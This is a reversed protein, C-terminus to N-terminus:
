AVMERRGGAHHLDLQALPVPRGFLYGQVLDVGANRMYELQEETEVGEATTVTGLGQALALTSAVIARCDRRDLVGQTFSKDIKIKDFPFVTLYNISSYGTGFDDLAISIGLNKLQRITTLQAEQNDLLSTETIELELREPALGTEVLTCLILDFLNDKRFQVASINIAVKVHEPWSVADTCAKQLVWEGLQVILGTSEALPIFRDPGILGRAPHRWRLLAEVGCLTRTKVDIVPQYHLEFQDQAIADRLESEASQQTQSAELMEPQFLRFDNRGEAKVAYLALDAKKLLEEPDLGHEPALVIGISTGISAPHGDLDFPRAIANIIRLALAIAGEHQNPGGEQIVAFEDGGLRALVDTERVSAKLRRAVEVLLQDGAPHGLTDNVVKFRDLDIMMVTVAGGNRKMRKSAEQLKANFEARNALGTLVDHRALHIIEAEARRRETIDEVIAVWGGGEMPQRVLQVFRGDALEDIRSSNPASNALETVRTKVTLEDTAGKLVGRSIRDAVITEYPTGVKLLEPPVQYLEAYRDNWVVLRKRGDFMCLGQAMNELAAGFRTNITELEAAKEALLQENHKEATVDEHTTLWGGNAMAQRKISILRGDVLQQVENAQKVNVSVYTDAAIEFNTGQERRYQLIQRLTTGPKVQDESLRYIQAYRANSVVVRQDGDFLCLGQSMNRLAAHFRANMVELEAAKEAVLKEQQRQATVDEHTAVWGGDATASRRIAIERGDAPTFNQKSQTPIREAHEDVTLDDIAGRDAHFQLLPDLPTGPMVLREPLDYIERFRSNAIVLKKDADFLCLGQAMNNLAADFRMNTRALEAAQKQIAEEHRIRETIDEHIAVWGGGAIATNVVAILRGDALRSSTTSKGIESLRQRFEYIYSAVDLNLNGAQKRHEIIETISIGQRVLEPSMGYLQVYRENWVMLRGDADFMSLGSSMNALAADFHINQTSLTENLRTLKDRGRDITMQRLIAFVTALLIIVTIIAAALHYGRRHQLYGSLIDSEALGVTFVLPFTESTRYAVLRNNGDVAGGGWYHGPSSQALADLFTPQKVKRGIANDSLGQAAIFFGDLNRLAISGKTGLDVTRYFRGIFNPDISTVIVGGFGGDLNRVRRSLKLSLKGSGRGVTPESIFLKDAGPDLHARFHVRDGLYVPPGRRNITSAIQYGDAGILSLQLTENNVLDTRKAWSGLDFHAPDDEYSKRLLLLTRDFRELLDVTNQEFLRVLADSQKLAGEMTKDREISSVFAAVLWCAVILVLGVLTSAHLSASLWAKYKGRVTMKQGLRFVEICRPKKANRV